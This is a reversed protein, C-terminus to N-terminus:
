ICWNSKPGSGTYPRALGQSILTSGIDVGNVEVHGNIRGGYKDWKIQRVTMTTENAVLTKLYEKAKIGLMKEKICNARYDSEPTDIGLIRVSVRCLPCPLQVLTSITDGDTVGRIPLVIDAAHASIAALSLIVASFIHKMNIKIHLPIRSDFECIIRPM